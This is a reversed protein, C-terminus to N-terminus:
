RGRRSLGGRRQLKATHNEEDEDRQRKKESQEAVASPANQSPMGFQREEETMAGAAFRPEGVRSRVEVIEVSSSSPTQPESEQEERVEEGQQIAEAVQREVQGLSQPGPATPGLATSGEYIPPACQLQGLQQISAQAAKEIDVSELIALLEPGRPQFNSFDQRETPVMGELGVPLELGPLQFNLFDRQGTPLTHSPRAPPGLVPQQHPASSVHEETPTVHSPAAPPGLPLVPYNVIQQAGPYIKPYGSISDFRQQTYPNVKLPRRSNPHCLKPLLGLGYLANSQIAPVGGENIPWLRNHQIRCWDCTNNVGVDDDSPFVHTISHPNPCLINVSQGKGSEVIERSFLPPCKIRQQACIHGCREYKAHLLRCM